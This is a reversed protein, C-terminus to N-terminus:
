PTKRVAPPIYDQRLLAEGPLYARLFLNFPARAVPIWNAM